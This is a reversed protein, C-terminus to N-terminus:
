CVVCDVWNPSEADAGCARALFAGREAEPVGLAADFLTEETM